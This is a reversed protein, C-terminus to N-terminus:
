FGSTVYFHMIPSLKEIEIHYLLSLVTGLLEAASKKDAKDRKMVRDSDENLIIWFFCPLQKM